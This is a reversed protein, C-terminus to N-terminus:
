IKTFLAGRSALQRRLNELDLDSVGQATREAVCINADSASRAQAIPTVDGEIRAGIGDLSVVIAHTQAISKRRVERRLVPEALMPRVQDIAHFYPQGRQNDTQDTKRKRFIVDVTLQQGPLHARDPHHAPEAVGYIQQQPKMRRNELPIIKKIAIMKFGREPHM